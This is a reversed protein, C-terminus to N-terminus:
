AGGGIPDIADATGFRDALFQRTSQWARESARASYAVGPPMGPLDSRPNTFAHQVGGYLDLEWHIGAATLDAELAARQQATAMPDDAGTCVLVGIGSTPASWDRDLLDLGGHISVAGVVDGGTRVHELAGAGGFCYGLSVLRSGDVEPQEAAARHAAAVRGMWEGRDRVMAGIDPGGAPTHRGGWVDAAFVAVGLEAHRRAQAVTDAGLGFADHLLVVTPLSAAGEPAILMGLMETGGHTYAVDRAILPRM